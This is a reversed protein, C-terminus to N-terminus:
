CVRGIRRSDSAVWQSGPSAGRWEYLAIARYARTGCFYRGPGVAWDKSGWWGDYDKGWTRSYYVWRGDARLWQLQVDHVAVTYETGLGPPRSVKAWARLQGTKYNYQVMACRAVDFGVCRHTSGIESWADAASSTTAEPSAGAATPVLGSTLAVVFAAGLIGCRARLKGRM